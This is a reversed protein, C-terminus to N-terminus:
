NSKVTYNFEIGVNNRNLNDWMMCFYEQDPSYFDFDDPTVSGEWSSIKKENVTYLISGAYHYHINFNVTDSSSFFIYTNNLLWNSLNRM